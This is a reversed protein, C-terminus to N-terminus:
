KINMRDIKHQQVREEHRRQMDKYAVFGAMPSHCGQYWREEEIRDIEDAEKSQIKWEQLQFRIDSALRKIFVFM